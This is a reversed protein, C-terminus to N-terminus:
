AFWMSAIRLVGAVGLSLLGLLGLLPLSSATKPLKTSDAKAMQTTQTQSASSPPKVVQAMEVEGTPKQAKVEAKKMAVVQPENASKAPKSINAELENPMSLVTQNTRKALEVARVKPYVFEEGIDRGPYFWAQIAEPAGNAREEFTIIPKTTPKLREDSIALITALLNTQNKDWIQVINRDSPSDLLTFVYTGAPLVKGPIEIPSNFTFITKQDFENAKANPMFITGLFVLCSLVVFQKM